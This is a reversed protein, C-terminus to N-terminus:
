EPRFIYPRARPVGPGYIRYTKKKKQKPGTSLPVFLVRPTTFPRDGTTHLDTGRAGTRRLRDFLFPARGRVGTANSRGVVYKKEREGTGFDRPSHTKPVFFV